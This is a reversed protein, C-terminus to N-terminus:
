YKKIRKFWKVYNLIGENISYKENWGLNKIKNINAIQYFPDGKRNIKLFKPNKKVKFFKFLIKLIKYNTLFNNGSIDVSPCDYSAIKRSKLIFRITDKINIWSRIEKGSGYFIYNNQLIKNSADWLLQKKLGDGYISFIRLNVAKFLKKSSYFKIIKEAKLKNRGYNSIPKTITSNKNKREGYVAASSINIIKTQANLTKVFKILEITTGVNKKYDKKPYNNSFSVSSSGACHVIIDPKFKLKILNKLTIKNNTLNKYNKKFEKKKNGIGFVTNEKKLKKFLAFGIFGYVGTILIKKKHNYKM